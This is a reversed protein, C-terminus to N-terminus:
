LDIKGYSILSTLMSISTISKTRWPPSKLRSVTDFNVNSNTASYLAGTAGM